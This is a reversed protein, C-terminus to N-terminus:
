ISALCYLSRHAIRPVKEAAEAKTTAAEKEAVAEAKAKVAAAKEAKAEQVEEKVQLPTPSPRKATPLM